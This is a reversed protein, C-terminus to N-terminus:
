KSAVNKQAVERLTGLHHTWGGEHDKTFSEKDADSWEM